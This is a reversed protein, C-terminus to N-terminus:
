ATINAEHDGLKAAPICSDCIQNHGNHCHRSIASASTAMGRWTRCIRNGLAYGNEIGIM